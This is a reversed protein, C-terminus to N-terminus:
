APGLVPWANDPLLPLLGEIFNQQNLSDTEKMRILHVTNPVVLHSLGRWLTHLNWTWDEIGFGRIRDVARYPIRRHIDRRAFVNASWMNELFLADREFDPEDSANHRLYFSLASAHPTKTTSHRDFDSEVFLYRYTPHWIAEAAVDSATASAHALRLWDAGWLDDGDLFALFDGAAAEAGANRALGLDGVSVEEVGDLWAGATAVTHRTLENVRDLVARAEITLGAARAADVMDYMSALAPVALPGEHHFIITVTIDPADRM